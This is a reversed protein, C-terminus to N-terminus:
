FKMAKNVYKYLAHARVPKENLIGNGARDRIGSFESSTGRPKANVRSKNPCNGKNNDEDGKVCM